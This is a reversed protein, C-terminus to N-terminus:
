RHLIYRWKPPHLRMIRGVAVDFSGSARVAIQMRYHYWPSIANLRKGPVLYVVICRVTVTRITIIIIISIHARTIYVQRSFPINNNNNGNNNCNSRPVWFGNGDKAVSPRSGDLTQGNEQPSMVADSPAQNFPM